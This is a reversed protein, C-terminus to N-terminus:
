FFVGISNPQPPPPLKERQMAKFIRSTSSLRQLPRTSPGPALLLVQWMRQPHYAPYLKQKLRRNVLFFRLLIFSMNWLGKTQLKAYKSASVYRHVAPPTIKSELNGPHDTIISFVLVAAYPRPLIRKNKSTSIQAHFNVSKTLSVRRM